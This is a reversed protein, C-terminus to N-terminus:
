ARDRLRSLVAALAEPLPSISTIPSLLIPHVFSIENAHLFLRSLGELGRRNGYLMDGAIPFGQLSLHARIQHRVGHRIEAEVLSWNGLREVLRCKTTAAAGVSGARMKAGKLGTKELPTDITLFAPFTGGVLALYRKVVEGCKQAETLADHIEQSLAVLMVGSTEFDLRQLLGGDGSRKGVASCTPFMSASFNALTGLEDPSHPVSSIGSPKEMVVLSADQYHITLLRSGDPKPVWNTGKPSAWIEVICGGKIRLSKVPKIGDVTVNGSAILAKASRRSMGPIVQTLWVDLRVITNPEVAVTRWPPAEAHFSPGTM